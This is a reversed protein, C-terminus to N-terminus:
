CSPTPKPAGVTVVLRDVDEPDVHTDTVVYRTQGVYFDAGIQVQTLTDIYTWLYHVM